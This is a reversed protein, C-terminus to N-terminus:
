KVGRILVVVVAIIIAVIILTLTGASFVSPSSPSSSSASPKVSTTSSTTIMTVTQNSSSYTLYVDGATFQLAIRGDSRVLINYPFPNMNNPAMGFPLIVTTNSPFFTRIIWVSHTKNAILSSYSISVFKSSQTSPMIILTNNTLAYDISTSSTNIVYLCTGICPVAEVDNVNVNVNITAMGSSDISVVTNQIEANVSM